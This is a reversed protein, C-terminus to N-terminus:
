FKQVGGLESGNNFGHIIGDADIYMVYSYSDFWFNRPSMLLYWVDSYLYYSMNFGKDELSIWGRSRTEQFM